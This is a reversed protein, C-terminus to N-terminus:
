TNEKCPRFCSFFSGFICFTSKVALFFPPFETLFRFRFRAIISRGHGRFFKRKTDSNTWEVPKGTELLFFYVFVAIKWSLKSFDTLQPIQACKQAEEKSCMSCTLVSFVFLGRPFCSITALTFEVVKKGEKCKENKGAKYMSCGRTTKGEVRGKWHIFIGNRFETPTRDSCAFNEGKIRYAM